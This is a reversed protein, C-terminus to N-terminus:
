IVDRVCRFGYNRNSGWAGDRLRYACRVGRRVNVFSGGRWSIRALAEVKGPEVSAGFKRDQWATETWERVNGAMGMVGFPSTNLNEAVPALSELVPRRGQVVLDPRWACGWPWRRGLLGRAAKEWEAETALRYPRGWERNEDRKGNRLLCYASAEFWSVGVVPRNLRRRQEGWSWPERRGGLASQLESLDFAQWWPKSLDYSNEGHAGLFESYERVTVPDFGIWFPSGVKQEARVPLEEGYVVDGALFPGHPVLIWSPEKAQPLFAAVTPGYPRVQLRGDGQVALLAQLAPGLAEIKEEVGDADAVQGLLEGGIREELGPQATLWEAVSAVQERILEREAEWCLVMFPDPEVGDGFQAVVPDERYRALIHSGEEAARQELRTDCAFIEDRLRHLASCTLTSPLANEEAGHLIARPIAALLARRGAEPLAPWGPDNACLIEALMRWFVLGTVRAEIERADTEDDGARPAVVRAVLPALRRLLEDGSLGDGDRLRQAVGVAALFEQVLQHHFRYVPRRAESGKEMLYVIASHARAFDFFDIVKERFYSPVRDYAEERVKRFTEADMLQLSASLEEGQAGGLRHRRTMSLLGLTGLAIWEPSGPRPVAGGASAENAGEHERGHRLLSTVYRELLGTLTPTRERPGGTVHVVRAVHLFFPHRHDEDHYAGHLLAPELTRAILARVERSVLSDNEFDEEAPHRLRLVATWHAPDIGLRSESRCTVVLRAVDTERLLRDAAETPESIQDLGDALLVAGGRRLAAVALSRRYGVNETVGTTEFGAEAWRQLTARIGSQTLTGDSARHPGMPLPAGPEGALRCALWLLFTTKGFGAPAEILIRVPRAPASLLEVLQPLSYPLWAEEPDLTAPHESEQADEKARRLELRELTHPVLTFVAPVQAGDVGIVTRTGYRGRFRKIQSEDFPRCLSRVLTDPLEHAARERSAEVAAAVDPETPENAARRAAELLQGLSEGLVKHQELLASVDRAIRTTETHHAEIFLARLSPSAKMAVVVAKALSSAVERASTDLIPRLRQEFSEELLKVLSAPTLSEGADELASAVDGAVAEADMELVRRALPGDPDATTELGAIERRVLETIGGAWRAVESVRQEPFSESGQFAAATEVPLRAVVARLWQRRDSDKRLTLFGAVAAPLLLWLQGTIIPEALPFLAGAIAEASPEFGRRVM